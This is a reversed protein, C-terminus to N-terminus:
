KKAVGLADQPPQFTMIKLDSGLQMALENNFRSLADAVVNDKGPLWTIRFDIGDALLVDVASMLIPNYVPKARLSTFIDFSNSNDTHCLIRKPKGHLRSLHIASCVALAEWFFIGDLPKDSPIPWQYGAREGPFWVGLGMGSADTYVELTDERDYITWESAGLIHVGSSGEVHQMFWKLERIIGSNVRVLARPQSKGATKDYLASLAPRLLPYVNLAWNVHGQIAWFERLPFRVGPVAFAQCVAVLKARKDLCMCVRMANPDVDFGIVRLRAGSVQKREAHPVGLEDWLELLRVQPTPMNKQYPGYWAVDDKEAAGFNDDVYSKLDLGRKYVAIWVILAAVSHFVKQAGRGGFNNCRDVHKEGEIAVIQNLQWLPHMPCLRYAESIDSKWIVLESNPRAKRHSRLSAGLSRIGDLKVGAIEAKQIRSNPSFEGHLHDVILRFDNSDPKPVVHVPVSVMGPLLDKGFGPSFREKGIEVKFQSKVFERERESKLPRDSNDWVCPAGEERPEAWPWFGNRLSWIVSDVHAPNPHDKLLDELVDVKIPTTIKFLDPRSEVTEWGVYDDFPPQPVPEATLSYKATVGVVEDDERWLFERLYRPRKARLELAERGRKRASEKEITEEVGAARM